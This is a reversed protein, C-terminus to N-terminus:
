NVYKIYYLFLYMIEPCINKLKSSVTISHPNTQIDNLDENERDYIEIGCDEYAKLPNERHKRYGLANLQKNEDKTIWCLRQKSILEKIKQINLCKHNPFHNAM